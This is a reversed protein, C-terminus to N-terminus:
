EKHEKDLWEGVMVATVAFWMPAIPILLVAIAEEVVVSCVITVVICIGFILCLLWLHNGLWDGIKDHLVCLKKDVKQFMSDIWERNTM